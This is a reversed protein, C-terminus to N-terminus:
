VNAKEDVDVVGRVKFECKHTELATTRYEINSLWLADWPLSLTLVCIVNGVYADPVM